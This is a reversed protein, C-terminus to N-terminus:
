QLSMEVGIVSYAPLDFTVFYGGGTVPILPVSTTQITSGPGSLMWLTASSQTIGPNALYITTAPMDGGTPNILVVGDQSNNYFATGLGAYGKASAISAALNGGAALNFYSAGAYLDYAYYQPYPQPVTGSQYACDYNADLTGLLCFSNQFFATSFYLLHAPILVGGSGYATNLLDTVFVANYLFSYPPQNRCCDGTGTSANYETILIPTQAANPQSGQHVLNSISTYFSAVGDNTGQELGYLTPNGSDWDMGQAILAGALYHHYSVFQVYPATTSDALFPTLWSASHGAPNALTPGGVLATAKDTQLQKEVVPAVAAYLELYENLRTQNPNPDSPDVCFFDPGDPENWVEYYSVVGPFNQDIHQVVQVALQAYQQDDTPAVHSPDKGDALCPNPNPQLFAPAYDIIMLMHFPSGQLPMLLNNLSSWDPSSPGNAFIQQLSLDARFLSFGAQQLLTAAAPRQTGFNPLGYGAGFIGAPIAAVASATSRNGFDASFSPTYISVPASATATPAAVSAATVAYTSGASTGATFVGQTNISGGKATWTVNTNSSGTVTATFAVSQGPQLVANGPSITVVVQQVPPPPSPASSGGCGSFLWSMCSIITICTPLRLKTVLPSIRTRSHSKGPMRFM